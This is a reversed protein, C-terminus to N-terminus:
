AIFKAKIETYLSALNNSKYASEIMKAKLIRETLDKKLKSKKAKISDAKLGEEELIRVYQNLFTDVGYVDQLKLSFIMKELYGVWQHTNSRAIKILHYIDDKDKENKKVIDLNIYDDISYRFLDESFRKNYVEELMGWNNAIDKYSATGFTSLMKKKNLTRYEFRSWNDEAKLLTKNDRFLQELRKDYLVFAHQTNELYLTDEYDDKNSPKGRKIGILSLPEKYYMTPMELQRNKTIDLRGISVSDMNPVIGIDMLDKEMRSCSEKFEAKTALHFNDRGQYKPVSFHWSLYGHLPDQEHTNQDIDVNIKKKPDNHHANVGWTTGKGNRFLPKEGKSGDPFIIGPKIALKHNDLVKFDPCRFVVTDIM